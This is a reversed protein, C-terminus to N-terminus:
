LVIKEGTIHDIEFDTMFKRYPPVCMIISVQPAGSIGGVIVEPQGAAFGDDISTIYFFFFKFAGDVNNANTRTMTM